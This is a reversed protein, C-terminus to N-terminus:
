LELERVVFATSRSHDIFNGEDKLLEAGLQEGEASSMAEMMDQESEFWVEAVGDFAPLMNRSERLGDSLPTEITHSQVYKKARMISANKVFFPGHRNLWYDQFQERTLHPHRACCMILKIMPLITGCLVLRCLLFEAAFDLTGALLRSSRPARCSLAGALAMHGSTCYAAERTEASQPEEWHWLNSGPPGSLLRPSVRRPAAQRASLPAVESSGLKPTMGNGAACTLGFSAEADTSAPGSGEPINWGGAAQRELFSCTANRLPLGWSLAADHVTAPWPALSM